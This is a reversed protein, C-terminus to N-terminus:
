SDSAVMEILLDLFRRAKKLDEQGGKLKWRCVYKIVSGEIFGLQNKHIFEIPKVECTM